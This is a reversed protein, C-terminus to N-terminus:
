NYNFYMNNPFKSVEPTLKININPIYEKDSFTDCINNIFSNFVIDIDENVKKTVSFKFDFGIELYRYINYLIQYYSMSKDLIEPHNHSIYSIFGIFLININHRDRVAGMFNKKSFQNFVQINLIYNKKGVSKMVDSIYQPDVFIPDLGNNINEYIKELIYDVDKQNVTEINKLINNFHIIKNKIRDVSQQKKGYDMIYGCTHCIRENEVAIFCTGTCNRCESFIDNSM